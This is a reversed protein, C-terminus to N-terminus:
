DEWWPSDEGQDTDDGRQELYAALNLADTIGVDAPAVGRQLLMVNIGELTM